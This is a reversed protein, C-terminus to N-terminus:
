LGLGVAVLLAIACLVLLGSALPLVFRDLVMAERLVVEVGAALGVLVGALLM